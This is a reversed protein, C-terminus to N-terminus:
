EGPLVKRHLEDLSKLPVLWQAVFLTNKSVQPVEVNMNLPCVHGGSLWGERAGAVGWCVPLEGKVSICGLTVAVVSGSWQAM